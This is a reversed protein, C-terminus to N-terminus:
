TANPGRDAPHMLAARWQLAVWGYAVAHPQEETGWVQVLKSDYDTLVKRFREVEERWAPVAKGAAALVEQTNEVIWSALAVHDPRPPHGAPRIRALCRMVGDLDARAEGLATRLHNNTEQMAGHVMDGAEEASMPGSSLTPLKLATRWRAQEEAVCADAFERAVAARVAPLDEFLHRDESARYRYRDEIHEDTADGRLRMSPGWVEGSM